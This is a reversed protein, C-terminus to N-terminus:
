PKKNVAKCMPIQSEPSAALMCFHIVVHSIPKSKPRSTTLPWTNVRCGYLPKSRVRRSKGAKEQLIRTPTGGYELRWPM